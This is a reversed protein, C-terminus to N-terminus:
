HKIIKIISLFDQPTKFDSKDFDFYDIIRCGLNTNNSAQRLQKLNIERCMYQNISIIYLGEITIVASAITNYTM